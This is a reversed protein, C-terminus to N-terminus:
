LLHASTCFCRSNNTLAPPHFEANGHQTTYTTTPSPQHIPHQREQTPQSYLQQHPSTPPGRREQTPSHISQQHLSIPPVNANRHQSHIVDQSTLFSMSRWLSAAPAWSRPFVSFLCSAFAETDCPFNRGWPELTLNCICHMM